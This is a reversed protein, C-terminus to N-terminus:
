RSAEGVIAEIVGGIREPTAKLEGHRNVKVPFHEAIWSEIAGKNTTEDGCPTFLYGGDERKRDFGAQLWAWWSGEDKLPETTRAGRYFAIQARRHDDHYTKVVKGYMAWPIDVGNINTIVARKKQPAGHPATDTNCTPTPLPLPPPIPSCPTTDNLVPQTNESYRTRLRKNWRSKIAKKAHDSRKKATVVWPQHDAWEHLAHGDLFHCPDRLTNVFTGSEGTWNAATEIQVDTMGTLDGNPRNAAAYTWLEVLRMPAGEGCLRALLRTKWHNPYTLEVRIDNVM